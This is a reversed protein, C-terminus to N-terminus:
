RTKLVTAWGVALIVVQLILAGVHLQLHTPEKSCICIVAFTAFVSAWTVMFLGLVKM